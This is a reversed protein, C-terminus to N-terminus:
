EHMLTAFERLVLDGCAHGHRDNVAKFDDLDALILAATGGAREARALVSAVERALARRTRAAGPPVSAPEQHLHRRNPLGTLGDVLAQREVIRHLRANELAVAAHGALSVAAIRDAEEFGEGRLV